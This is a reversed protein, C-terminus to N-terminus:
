NFVSSSTVYKRLLSEGPFLPRPDGVAHLPGQKGPEGSAPVGGAVGARGRGPPEHATTSFNFANTIAIAHDFSFIVPPIITSSSYESLVLRSFYVEDLLLVDPQKLLAASLGVRKREGGSLSTVKRYLFPEPINLKTAINLGREQYEWGNSAEMTDTITSFADM